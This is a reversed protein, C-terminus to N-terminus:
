GGGCKDGARTPNSSKRFITNLLHDRVEPWEKKADVAQLLWAGVKIPDNEYLHQGTESYSLLWAPNMDGHSHWDENQGIYNCVDSLVKYKVGDVEEDVRFTHVPSFSDQLVHMISGLAVDATMKNRREEPMGLRAFLTRVKVNEADSLCYNEVLSPISLEKLREPSLPADYKTETTAVHYAFQIWGLSKELTNDLRNNISDGKPIDTMFHLHQLSGYHSNWTLSDARMTKCDKVGGPYRYKSGGSFFQNFKLVGTGFDFWEGWLMMLPDDNWWSGYIIDSTKHERGGSVTWPGEDMYPLKQKVGKKTAVSENKIFGSSRYEDIAFNTLHEHVTSRYQEPLRWCQNYGNVGDAKLVGPSYTLIRLCPSMKFAWAVEPVLAFLGILLPLCFGNRGIRM